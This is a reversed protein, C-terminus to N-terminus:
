GEPLLPASLRGAGEAARGAESWAALIRQRKLRYGAAMVLPLGAFLLLPFVAHGSAEVGALAAMGAVLLQFSYIWLLAVNIAASMGNPSVGFPLRPEGAQRPEFYPSREFVDRVLVASAALSMASVFVQGLSQLLPAYLTAVGMVVKAGLKLRAQHDSTRSLPHARLLRLDAESVVIDQSRDFPRLASFEIYSLKGGVSSLRLAIAVFFATSVASLCVMGKYLATGCAAGTCLTGRLLLRLVSLLLAGTLVQCGTGVGLFVYNWLGRYAFMTDELREQVAMACVLGAVVLTALLFPLEAPVKDMGFYQLFVLTEEVRQLHQPHFAAFGFGFLQCTSILLSGADAVYSLSPGLWMVSTDFFALGGRTQRVVARAPSIAARSPRGGTAQLLPCSFAAFDGLENFLLCVGGEVALQQPPAKSVDLLPWQAVFEKAETDVRWSRITLDDEAFTLFCAPGYPVLGRVPHQNHMGGREEWKELVGTRADLRWCHVKGDATSALLLNSVRDLRMAQASRLPEEHLEEVRGAALDLRAVKIRGGRGRLDWSLTLGAEAHHEVLAIECWEHLHENCAVQALGGASEDLRYAAVMGKLGTVVAIRTPADYTFGTLQEQHQPAEHRAVEALAGAAADLRWARVTLDGGMTVVARLKADYALGTVWKGGHAYEHCAVREFRKGQLDLRWAALAGDKGGTVAICSALDYAFVNVAQGAHADQQEAEKKLSGLQEDLHWGNLSGDKEATLAIGSAAYYQFSIIERKNKSKEETGEEVFGRKSQDFGWTTMRGSMDATIARLKGASAFSSVIQLSVVEFEPEVHVGGPWAGFPDPADTLRNALWESSPPLPQIVWRWRGPGLAAFAFITHRETPPVHVGDKFVRQFIAAGNHSDGTAIYRGSYGPEEQHVVNVAVVAKGGLLRAPLPLEYNGYVPEVQVGCGNSWDGHPSVGETFAAAKWEPSPPVPQLVWLWAGERRAEHAYIVWPDDESRQGGGTVMRKYVPRGHFTEGAWVYTGAAQAQPHLVELATASEQVVRYSTWDGSPSNDWKGKFFVDVPEGTDPGSFCFGLCGALEKAKAKAEAVTLRQVHLDGGASIFGEVRELAKESPNQFVSPGDSTTPQAGQEEFGQAGSFRWVRLFSDDGITVVWGSQAELALGTIDSGGHAGERAALERFAAGARRWARLAGDAGVTIATQSAADYELKNICQGTTSCQAVVDLSGMGGKARVVSWCTLVGRVGVTLLQKASHDYRIDTIFGINRAAECATSTELGAFAELSARGKASGGFAWVKVDGADDGTAAYGDQGFRVCTIPHDHARASHLVARAPQKPNFVYLDQGSAILLLGGVGESIAAVPAGLGVIRDVREIRSRTKVLSHIYVAPGDGFYVVPHRDSKCFVPEHRKVSAM